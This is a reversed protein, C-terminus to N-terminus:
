VFFGTVIGARKEFDTDILFGCFLQLFIEVDAM